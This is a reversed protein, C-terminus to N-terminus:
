GYLNNDCKIRWYTGDEMPIQSIESYIKDFELIDVVRQNNSETFKIDSPIIINWGDGTENPEYEPAFCKAYLKGKAKYFFTPIVVDGSKLQTPEFIYYHKVGNEDRQEVM